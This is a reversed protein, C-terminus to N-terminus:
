LRLEASNKQREEVGGHIDHGLVDELVKALNQRRIRTRGRRAFLCNWGTQRFIWFPRTVGGKRNTRATAAICHRDTVAAATKHPRRRKRGYKGAAQLVGM